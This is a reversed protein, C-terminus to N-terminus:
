GQIEDAKGKAKAKVAEDEAEFCDECLGRWSAPAFSSAHAQCGL